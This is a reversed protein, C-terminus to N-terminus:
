CATSFSLDIFFLNMEGRAKDGFLEFIDINERRAEASTGSAGSVFHEGNKLRLL